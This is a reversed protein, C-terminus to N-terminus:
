PDDLHWFRPAESRGDLWHALERVQLHILRRWSIHEGRWHLTDVLQKEWAKYVLGRRGDRLFCAVAEVAFDEPELEGMLLRASFRDALPRLPEMLDMLLAPRGNESAHYFGGAADLGAACVGVEVENMLLTYALSLLANVPDPPPHHIRREFKFRTKGIHERFGNFFGRAAAGEHGRLHELDHCHHSALLHSSIEHGVTIKWQRLLRAQGRLKAQVLARETVLQASPDRMLDFQRQRLRIQRGEAGSLIGRLNSFVVPIKERLLAAIADHSFHVHGLVMIQEIEGIMLTQKDGGPMALTLRGNSYGLKLGHRDLYVTGMM